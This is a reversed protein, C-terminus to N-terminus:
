KSIGLRLVHALAVAGKDTIIQQNADLQNIVTQSFTALTTVAGGTINGLLQASYANGPTTTNSFNRATYTRTTYDEFSLFPTSGGATPNSKPMANGGLIPATNEGVRPFLALGSNLMALVDANLHTALETHAAAIAPSNLLEQSWVYTEVSNAFEEEPIADQLTPNAGVLDQHVAEHALFPALTLFSEGKFSTKFLTRIRGTAPNGTTEAIEAANSVETSFDVVTFPKGTVNAGTTFQAIAGDAITGTLSALAARLNPAPILATITSDNYTALASTMQAPTIFGSSVEANLYSTLQTTVTNTAPENPTATLTSGAPFLAPDFFQFQTPVFARCALTFREKNLGKPLQVDQAGISTSDSANTVAGDTIVLHAGKRVRRDTTLIIKNGDPGAVASTIHITTKSQAAGTGTETLIRYGFMRFGTPDVLNINESFKVTIVSQNLPNGSNDTSEAVKIKNAIPVASMMQREELKEFFPGNSNNDRRSLSEFV